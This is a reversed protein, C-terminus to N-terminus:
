YRASVGLTSHRESAESAVLREIHSFIQIIKLAIFLISIEMKWYCQFHKLIIFLPHGNIKFDYIPTAMISRVTHFLTGSLSWPIGLSMSVIQTINGEHKICKFIFLKKIFVHSRLSLSFYMKFLDTARRSCLHDMCVM